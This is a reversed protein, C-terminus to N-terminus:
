FFSLEEGTEALHQKLYATGDDRVLEVTLENGKIETVLFRERLEQMAETGSAYQKETEDTKITVPGSITELLGTLPVAGNMNALVGTYDFIERDGAAEEIQKRQDKSINKDAICIAKAKKLCDALRDFSVVPIGDLTQGADEGIIRVPQYKSGEDLQRVAKKAFSGSAVVVTPIKSRNKFKQREAMLIRVLVRYGLTSIFQLFAGILYYSIPMRRIFILTGLIMVVATAANAFTIRNMDNLGFFRWMGSYLKFCYFIIVALVTYYPTFRAWETLYHYVTPRFEGNVYFRVLLALVYAANFAIIDLAILWLNMKLFRLIRKKNM